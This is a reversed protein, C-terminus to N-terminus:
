QNTKAGFVRVINTGNTRLFSRFIGKGSMGEIEAFKYVTLDPDIYIEEPRTILTRVTESQIEKKNNAIMHCIAEMVNELDHRAKDPGDTLQIRVTQDRMKELM